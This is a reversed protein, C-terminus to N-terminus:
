AGESMSACAALDRLQAEIGGLYWRRAADRGEAELGDMTVTGTVPTAEVEDDVLYADLVSDLEDLTIGKGGPFEVTVPIGAVTM